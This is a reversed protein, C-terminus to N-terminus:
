EGKGGVCVCVTVLVFVFVFVFLFVSLLAFVLVFVILRIQIRSPGVYSDVGDKVSGGAIIIIFVSCRLAGRHV